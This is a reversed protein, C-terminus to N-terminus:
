LSKVIRKLLPNIRTVIEYNITGIKRAIEEATIQEQGQKGILVVEDELKIELIHNIEVIIMNMCVRGLVRCREGAILVNGVCSLGRDLGDWYGVPLIAVKTQLNVKETCGYSIPTGAPLTKLHAVRTKWTLAPRLDLEIGKQKSSILTEPSSWLGYLSIGIRVLDFYTEPFLIAAASCATHKIFYKFGNREIFEVAAKFSELQKIAYSHDTTDEINAFHTSAGALKLWTNAKIYDLYKPLDAPWIGQRSTGTEIKLHIFVPTQKQECITKLKELTEFNAIVQHFGNEVVELLRDFLTYGLILILKGETGLIERASLAEDVSDVALWDVHDKIVGVVEKLGHGYANSKVVGCLAVREGIRQRFQAINYLLNARSIEVWTRYKM